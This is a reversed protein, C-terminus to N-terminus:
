IAKEAVMLFLPYTRESGKRGRRITHVTSFRVHSFGASEAQRQLEARDFGHHVGAVQKGHFSGDEKELDSISLYGGVELLSHFQMLLPTIEPIHHLAMLSYIIGYRSAPLPDSSLDLRLPHMNSAGASQIKGALVDLMGQSTDALTISAFENQLAFSLLGTGCGYELATMGPKLPVAARIADAVVRAREVKAPDSDWDKAREDFNIV